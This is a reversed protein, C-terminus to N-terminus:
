EGFVVCSLSEVDPANNGDDLIVFDSVVAVRILSTVSVELSLGPDGNGSITVEVPVIGGEDVLFSERGVVAITWVVNFLM